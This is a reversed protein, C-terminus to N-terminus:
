PLAELEDALRVIAREEADKRFAGAARQLLVLGKKLHEIDEDTLGVAWDMRRVDEETIGLLAQKALGSAGGHDGGSLLALADVLGKAASM